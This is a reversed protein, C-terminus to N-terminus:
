QVPATLRALRILLRRSFRHGRYTAATVPVAKELDDTLMAATAEVFARDSVLLTLEFNLRFSRNDFNATGVGALVDDVVFCKQHLFGERYLLMKIGARDMQEIYSRAALDGIRNDSREPLLLRVDVGRLGALQLASVMGMDPVFYPTAIWLRKTAMMLVQLYMMAAEEFVDSPDSRCVLVAANGEPAPCPDWALDPVEGSAWLWDTAFVFQVGLAAPGEVRAYTDRWKGIKRDLGLYEDGLNHGGVWAVHGDVVVCKRHNRFNIQFRNGRGRTSNFASVKVGADTLADCYRDPLGYSGLEDYLFYVPVGERAKAILADRFRRGLGDDRVIYFQALVHTRAAAIGAFISAFAAEGDILLSVANRDTFPQQAIRTLAAHAPIHQAPRVVYPEIAAGLRTSAAVVQEAVRERATLYGQFKTRGFVLYLPVAVYPFTILSVSWAIAGQPTRTQMIAVLACALGTLHLLVLAITLLTM